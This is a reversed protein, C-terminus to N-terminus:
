VVSWVERWRSGARRYLTVNGHDSIVAFHLAARSNAAPLQEGREIDDRHLSDISPWVGFCAGDGETAGFYAYDPCHSELIQTLEDVMDYSSIEDPEDDSRNDWRDYDRRIERVTMRESRTLRISDLADLYAPILDEPRLTAESIVGLRLTTRKRRTVM